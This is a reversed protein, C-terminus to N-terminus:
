EELGLFGNPNERFLAMKNKYSNLWKELQNFDMTGNNEVQSLGSSFEISKLSLWMLHTASNFEDLTLGPFSKSIHSPIQKISPTIAEFLDSLMISKGKISLGQRTLKGEGNYESGWEIKDVNHWMENSTSGHLLFAVRLDESVNQLDGEEQLTLSYKELLHLLVQKGSPM